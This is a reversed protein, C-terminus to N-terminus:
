NSQEKILQQEMFDIVEQMSSPKKSFAESFGMSRSRRFFAETASTMVPDLGLGRMTEAVQVMELGRREHAITHTQVWNSVIQEFPHSTM